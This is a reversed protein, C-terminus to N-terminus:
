SCKNSGQRAIIKCNKLTAVHKPNIKRDAIIVGDADKIEEYFVEEEENSVFVLDVDLESEDFMKKELDPENVLLSHLVIKKKM